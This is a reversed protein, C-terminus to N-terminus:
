AAGRTARLAAIIQLEEPTIETADLGTPSGQGTQLWFGNIRFARAYRKIHHEKLGDAGRRGMEHSRYTEAPLRLERAAHRSSTFGRMERAWLLRDAVTSLPGPPPTEPKDMPVHQVAFIPYVTDQGAQTRATGTM